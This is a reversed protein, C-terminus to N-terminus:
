AMAAAYASLGLPPPLPIEKAYLIAHLPTGGVFIPEDWVKDPVVGRAHAKLCNRWHQGDAFPTGQDRMEDAELFGLYVLAVPIGLSALKWAWAFRNSLQYHHEISLNWGPLVCNLARSAEGCAAEIKARNKESREASREGVDPPCPAKGSDSLERTHAKAEVLLLGERGDVTATSAIDWNPTNAGRPFRLFWNTIAERDRESLFSPLDGLRAERPEAFGRPMWAHRVPDVTAFPAALASLRHAVVNNSGQTLLICRARGGRRERPRLNKVLTAVTNMNPVWFARRRWLTM